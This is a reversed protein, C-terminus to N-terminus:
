LKRFYGSTQAGLSGYVKSFWLYASNMKGGCNARTFPVADIFDGSRWCRLSHYLIAATVCIFPGNIKVLFGENM